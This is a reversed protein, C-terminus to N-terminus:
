KNKGLIVGVFTTCKKCFYLIKSNEFEYKKIQVDGLEECEYHLWMQCSDCDIGEELVLIKCIPWYDLDEEGDKMDSRREEVLNWFTSFAADNEFYRQLYRKTGSSNGFVLHGPVDTYQWNKVDNMTFPYEGAHVNRLTNVNECLWQM